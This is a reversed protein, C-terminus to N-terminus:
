EAARTGLHRVRVVSADSAYVGFRNRNVLTRLRGKRNGIAGKLHSLAPARKVNFGDSSLIILYADAGGLPRAVV